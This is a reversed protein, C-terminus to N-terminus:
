AERRKGYIFKIVLNCDLLPLWPFPWYSVKQRVFVQDLEALIQDAFNPHEWCIIKDPNITTNKKFWRRSTLMRGGGWALGGEAPIAGMFVGGPKLIRNLEHLYPGLPYIHELSYFSIAVDLSSAELPIPQGRRVFLSQISIDRALLRDIAKDLMTQRVDALIYKAPNERWFQIHRIDGPGIELVTKGSLDIRSMIKYGADNIMVGVGERQTAQYCDVM